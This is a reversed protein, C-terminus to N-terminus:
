YSLSPHGYEDAFDEFLVDSSGVAKIIEEVRDAELLAHM